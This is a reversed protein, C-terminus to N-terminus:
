YSSMIGSMESNTQLIRTYDTIREFSSLQEWVQM